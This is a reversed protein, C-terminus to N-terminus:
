AGSPRISFWTPLSADARYISKSSASWTPRRSTTTGRATRSSGLIPGGQLRFRLGHPYAQGAPAPTSALGASRLVAPLSAFLAEGEGNLTCRPGTVGLLQRRYPRFAPKEVPNM